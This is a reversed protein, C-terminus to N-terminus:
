CVNISYRKQAPGTRPASHAVLCACDRDEHLEKRVPLCVHCSIRLASVALVYSSPVPLSFLVSSNLGSPFYSDLPLSFHFLWEPWPFSM